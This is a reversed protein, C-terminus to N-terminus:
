AAKRSTITSAVAVKSSAKANFRALLGLAILESNTKLIGVGNSGKILHLVENRDNVSYNWFIRFEVKPTKVQRLM